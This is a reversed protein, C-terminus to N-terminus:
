IDEKRQANSLATTHPDDIILGYLFFYVGVGLPSIKFKQILGIQPAQSGSLDWFFM